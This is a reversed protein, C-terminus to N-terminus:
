SALGLRKAKRFKMRKPPAMADPIDAHPIEGASEPDGGAVREAIASDASREEVSGGPPTVAQAAQQAQPEHAADTAVDQVPVGGPARATITKIPGALQSKDPAGYGLNVDGLIAPLQNAAIAQQIEQATILRPNFFFTGVRTDVRQANFQRASFAVPTGKPFMVAKRKGAKLQQLQLQITGSAEPTTPHAATPAQPPPMRNPAPPPPMGSGFSFRKKAAEGLEHSNVDDFQGKYKAKILKGLHASVLHDYPGPM